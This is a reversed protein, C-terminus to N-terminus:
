TSRTWFRFIGAVGVSLAARAHPQPSYPDEIRIVLMLLLFLFDFITLGVQGSVPVVGGALLVVGVDIPGLICLVALGLAAVADFPIAFTAPKTRLSNSMGLPSLFLRTEATGAAM